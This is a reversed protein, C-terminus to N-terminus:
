TSGELDAMLGLYARYEEEGLLEAVAFYDLKPAEPYERKLDILYKLYRTHMELMASNEGHPHLSPEPNRKLRGLFGRVPRVLSSALGPMEQENQHVVKRLPTKSRPCEAVYLVGGSVKTPPASVSGAVIRDCDPCYFFEYHKLQGFRTVVAKM